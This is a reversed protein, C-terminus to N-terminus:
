VGYTDRLKWWPSLHILQWGGPGWHLGRGAPVGTIDAVSLVPTRNTSYSYGAQAGRQSTLPHAAFTNSSSITLRDFEGSMRSLMDATNRDAMGALILKDPFLTLFGSAAAEGWRARAQSMDQLAVVLHLGQGGAESVIAPVPIPATNAAEDLVFTIPASQSERGLDVAQRRRYQALRISELLGAILPAFDRQRDVPCAIFVSDGQSRVFAAPDFNPRLGAEIAAPSTYINLLRALTSAISEREKDPASLLSDLLQRAIQAGTTGDEAAVILMAEVEPGAATPAMSWRALSELDGGPHSLRAAFLLVALWSEARDLWHDGAHGAGAQPRAPAALRGAVSRAADWDLVDVLPNWVLRTVGPPPPETGGPDFWWVQGRTSRAAATAALVETKISTSVVPGPAFAVSCMCVAQTKSSGPPGVVLVAGRPNALVTRGHDDVGLFGGAYAPVGAPGAAPDRQPQARGAPVAPPAPRPSRLRAALRAIEPWYYGGVYAIAPLGWSSALVALTAITFAVWRGCAFRKGRRRNQRGLIAAVVTMGTILWWVQGWDHLGGHTVRYIFPATLVAGAAIGLWYGDRWAGVLVTPAQQHNPGWNAM